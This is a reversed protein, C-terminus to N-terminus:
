VSNGTNECKWFPLRCHLLCDLNLRHAGAVDNIESSCSLDLSKNKEIM